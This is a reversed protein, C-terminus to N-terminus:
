LVLPVMAQLSTKANEISEVQGQQDICGLTEHCVLVFSSFHYLCRPFIFVGSPQSSVLTSLIGVTCRQLGTIECQQRVRVIRGRLLTCRLLNCTPRAYRVLTAHQMPSQLWGLLASWAPSLGHLYHM